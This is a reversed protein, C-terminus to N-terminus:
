KKHKRLLKNLKKILGTRWDDKLQTGILKIIEKDNKNLKEGELEKIKLLIEYDGKEKLVYNRKEYETIKM